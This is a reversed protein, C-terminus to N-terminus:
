WTRMDKVKDWVIKAIKEASQRSFHIGDVYDSIAIDIFTYNRFEPERLSENYEKIRESISSTYGNSGFGKPIPIEILYVRKGFAELWKCIILINAKYVEVPTNIECKADNTGILIFAEKAQSHEIVNFVSRILESSTRGPVADIEPMILYNSEQLAIRVMDYIFSIGASDRSGYMLSDGLFLMRGYIM